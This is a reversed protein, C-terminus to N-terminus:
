LVSGTLLATQTQHSIEADLKTGPEVKTGATHPINVTMDEQMVRTDNQQGPVRKAGDHSEYSVRIVSNKM